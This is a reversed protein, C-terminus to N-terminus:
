TTILPLNRWSRIQAKSRKENELGAYILYSNEPKVGAIKQVYDLNKFFDPSVSNASKIELASIENGSPIMIDIENGTSDRWFYLDPKVGRNLQQKMMEVIIFNEFLAGRAYHQLLEAHSRIRLLACALGTDYFYLKPSKLIRKNFNRFYPPLLFAIFGTHLISMWRQITPVSVGVENALNSQNFLQGIRGACLQIFKEFSLLDGVAQVQRVDREVYSQIYSPFFIDPPVQQDYV